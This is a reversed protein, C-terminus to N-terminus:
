TPLEMPPLREVAGRVVKFLEPDGGKDPHFQLQVKKCAARLEEPSADLRSGVLEHLRGQHLLERAEVVSPTM